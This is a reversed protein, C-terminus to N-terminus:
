FRPCFVQKSNMGPLCGIYILSLEPGGYIESLGKLSSVNVDYSFGLSLGNMDVRFVPYFADGLRYWSGLYIAYDTNHLSALNIRAFSGLDTEHYPGQLTYMAKPYLDVRPSLKFQGSANVVIKTSIKSNSNGEFSKLPKNLHYAAAGITFNNQHDPIWSWQAGASVDIYNYTAGHSWPFTGSITGSPTIMSGTVAKSMDFSGTAYNLLLGGGLYQIGFRDLNKNYALDLGFQNSSLALDGAKDTQAMMGVGLLDRGVKGKIFRIDGTAAFSSYPVPVSNWQNRYVGTFRYDCNIFGANAPNLLFPSAFFQSFHIDQGKIFGATMLLLACCIFNKIKMKM